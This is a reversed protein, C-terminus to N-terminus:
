TELTLLWEGEFGVLCDREKAPGNHRKGNTDQYRILLFQNHRSPNVQISDKGRGSIFELPPIKVSQRM